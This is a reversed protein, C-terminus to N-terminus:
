FMYSVTFMSREYVRVNDRTCFSVSKRGMRLSFFGLRHEVEEESKPPSQFTSIINDPGVVSLVTFCFISLMSLQYLIKLLRYLFFTLYMIGEVFTANLFINEADININTIIPPTVLNPSKNSKPCSKLAKAWNEWM